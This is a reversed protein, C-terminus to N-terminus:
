GLPFHGYSNILTTHLWLVVMDLDIPKVGKLSNNPSSAIVWFFSFCPGYSCCSRCFVFSIIVYCFVSYFTGSKLSHLVDIVVLGFCYFPTVSFNPQFINLWPIQHKLSHGIRVCYAFQLQLPFSRKQHYKRRPGTRVSQLIHVVVVYRIKSHPHAEAINHTIQHLRKKM